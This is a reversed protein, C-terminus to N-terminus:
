LARIDDATFVIEKDALRLIIRFDDPIENSSQDYGYM